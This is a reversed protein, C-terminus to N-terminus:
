PKFTHLVIEHKSAQSGGEVIFTLTGNGNDILGVLGRSALSNSTGADSSFSPSYSYVATPTNGDVRYATVVGLTPVIADRVVVYTKSSGMSVRAGSVGQHCAGVSKKTTVEVATWSGGPKGRLLWVKDSGGQRAVLAVVAEAKDADWAADLSCVATSNAFVSAGTGGSTSSLWSSPTDDVGKADLPMAWLERQYTGSKNTEGLAVVWFRAKNGDEAGMDVVTPRVTSFEGLVTVGKSNASGVVGGAVLQNL